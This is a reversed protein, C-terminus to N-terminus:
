RNFNAHLLLSSIHHLTEELLCHQEWPLSDQYFARRLNVQRFPVDVLLEHTLLSFQDFM